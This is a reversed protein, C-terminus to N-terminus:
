ILKMSEAPQISRLLETPIAVRQLSFPGPISDLHSSSKGCRDLRAWPGVWGGICCAGPGEWPYLPRFTAKVLWGM